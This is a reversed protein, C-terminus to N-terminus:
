ARRRLAVSPLGNTVLEKGRVPSGNEIGIVPFAHGVEQILQRAKICSHDNLNNIIMNFKFYSRAKEPYISMLRAKNISEPKSPVVKSM